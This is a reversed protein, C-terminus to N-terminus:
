LLDRIRIGLGKIGRCEVVEENVVYTNEYGRKTPVTMVSVDGRERSLIWYEPVGAQAYPLAKRTRDYDDSSDSVEIVLV